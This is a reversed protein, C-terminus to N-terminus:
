TPLLNQMLDFYKVGTQVAPSLQKQQIFKILQGIISNYKIIIQDRPLEM